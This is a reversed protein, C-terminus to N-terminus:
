ESSKAIMESKISFIASFPSCNSALGNNGTITELRSSINLDGPFGGAKGFPDCSPSRTRKKKTSCSTM